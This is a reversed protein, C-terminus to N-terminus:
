ACNTLLNYNTNSADFVACFLGNFHKKSIKLYFKTFYVQSGFNVIKIYNLLQKIIKLM